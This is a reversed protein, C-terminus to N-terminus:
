EDEVDPFSILTGDNGDGAFQNDPDSAIPCSQQKCESEIGPKGLNVSVVVDRHCKSCSLTQPPIPIEITSM